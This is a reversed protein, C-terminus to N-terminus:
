EITEDAGALIASPITVGLTEATKLNVILEFKTPREIPLNAPATGALVKGAMVGLQRTASQLNAGYSLLGGSRPFESFMTIAPLKHRLELEALLKASAPVLPTSLMIAAGAGRDKAVAFAGAYDDRTRIELLDAQIDLAKATKNLADVQVPPTRADWMLAVHSLKPMCERLLEIWKGAFNPFDLFVGTVSGGPRAISQAYGAAIPDSEFDIAIIPLDKAKVRAAQLVVPGNAIFVSVKKDLVEALMPALADPDGDTVRVVLEVQAPAFGSARLGEVIANIRPPALTKSGTYVYGVKPSEGNRQAHGTQPLLAAGAFLRGLRRRQLKIM